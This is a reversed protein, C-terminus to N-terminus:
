AGNKKWGADHASTWASTIAQDTSRTPLLHSLVLEAFRCAQEFLPM